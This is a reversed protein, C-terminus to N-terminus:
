WSLKFFKDKKLDKINLTDIWYFPATTIDDRYFRISYDGKRNAKFNIFGKEDTRLTHILVFSRMSFLPNEVKLVEVTLNKRPQNNAVDIAQIKVEIVGKGSKCSMVCTCLFIFIIVINKSKM